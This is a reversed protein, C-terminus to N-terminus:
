ITDSSNYDDDLCGYITAKNGFLEFKAKQFKYDPISNQSYGNINHTKALHFRNERLASEYNIKM